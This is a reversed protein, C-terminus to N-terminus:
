SVLKWFAWTPTSLHNLIHFCFVSVGGRSPAPCPCCLSYPLVSLFVHVFHFLVCVSPVIDLSGHYPQLLNSRWALRCGPTCSSHTSLPLSSAGSCVLLRGSVRARDTQRRVKGKWDWFLGGAWFGLSHMVIGQFDNLWVPLGRFAQPKPYPFSPGLLWGCQTVQKQEAVGTEVRGCALGLSTM